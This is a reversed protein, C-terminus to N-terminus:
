DEKTRGAAYVILHSLGIGIPAVGLWQLGQPVDQTVESPHALIASLVAFAGVGLSIWVLGALLLLRQVNWTRRKVEHEIMPPPEIGKEMAALRERHVMIRRHHRLYQQFATYCVLAILLLTFYFDM